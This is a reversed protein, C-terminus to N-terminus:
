KEADLVIRGDDVVKKWMAMDRRLVGALEDANGPNSMVGTKLLEDKVEPLEILATFERSYRDALERPTNRPLFIGIWANITVGDVGSERLTPVDSTWSTRADTLTALIRMKGAKALALTGNLPLFAFDVQGGALDTVAGASAKYPIHVVDIGTRQKFMETVLHHPTGIGPTSYNMKGPKSKALAILDAVNRVPLGPAAVIAYYVATMRAVPTFDRAADWGLDKQLLNIMAMTSPAVLVMSGDPPAKAVAGMGIAGSAGTRNEIIITQGLRQSLRPAILRSILDGVTGPSTPVMLTVPKLSPTQAMAAALFGAAFLAVGIRAVITTCPMGM